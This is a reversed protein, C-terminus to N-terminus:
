TGASPTTLPANGSPWSSSTFLPGVPALIEEAGLRHLSEERDDREEQERHGDEGELIGIRDRDAEEM